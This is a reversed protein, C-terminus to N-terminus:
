IMSSRKGEDMRVGTDIGVKQGRKGIIDKPNYGKLRTFVRSFYYVDCFGCAQSTETVNSMNNMLMSEAHNVRIVNIYHSLNMGMNQAFLASLYSPSLHVMDALEHLTLPQEYHATIYEIVQRVRLDAVSVPNKYVAFDLLKSIILEVYARTTLRFGNGQMLWVLSLEKYLLILEPHIGIPTVTNFPLHQVANGEMDNLLFNLAYLEYKKIGTLWGQRFTGPPVYLLDGKKVTVMKDDLQYCAEGDLVYTVDHFDIVCPTITWSPEANRYIFYDLRPLIADYNQSGM